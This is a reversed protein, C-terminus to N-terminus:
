AGRRVSVDVVTQRVYVLGTSPECRFQLNPGGAQEVWEQGDSLLYDRWASAYASDVTVNVGTAQAQSDAGSRNIPFRVRSANERVVVDAEGGAYSRNAATGQLTVISVVAREDDCIFTPDGKTIPSGRESDLFVGGSEYAVTTDELEYRIAGMRYRTPSDGTGSVNVLVSSPADSGNVSLSGGALSIASSRSSAQSSQVEDLGDELLLMGREISRTNQNLQANQLHDVGVTATLGVGVLIVGVMLVYGVMDTVARNRSAGIRRDINGEPAPASASM